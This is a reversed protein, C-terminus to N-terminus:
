VEQESTTNSCGFCTKLDQTYCFQGALKPHKLFLFFPQVRIHQLASVPTQHCTRMDKQRGTLVLTLSWVALPHLLQSSSSPNIASSIREAQKGGQRAALEDLSSFRFTIWYFQSVLLDFLSWFWTTLIPPPFLVFWPLLSSSSWYSLKITFGKPHKLFFM